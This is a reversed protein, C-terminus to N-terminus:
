ECNPISSTLGLLILSTKRIISNHVMKPNHLIKFVNWHKFSQHCSWTWSQHWIDVLQYKISFLQLVLYLMYSCTHIFKILTLILRQIFIFKVSWYDELVTKSPLLYSVFSLFRLVTCVVGYHCRQENNYTSLKYNQFKKMALWTIFNENLQM